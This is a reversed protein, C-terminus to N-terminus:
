QLPVRIANLFARIKPAEPADPALQLYREFAQAARNVDRLEYFVLGADRWPAALTPDLQIANGYAELVREANQAGGQAWLVRGLNYHSKADNPDRELAAALGRQAQAYEQKQFNAM